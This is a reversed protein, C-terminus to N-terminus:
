RAFIDLQFIPLLMAIVIVGIISGVALIMAPELLTTLLKISENTEQEYTDAIDSLTASLSGSEEGVVILDGLMAPVIRLDKFSGGLSRGALLDDQCKRLEVAIVESGVVPTSLQMARVIPIGSKLLLQLTRCFRALEVKLIFPGLFPISLLVQSKYLRGEKTRDWQKILIAIVISGGLMWLWNHILFDSVAMVIQTPLPLEQDFNVFISTINPMVYTLIFIVTGLGFIGMFIPYAIASRVKSAIQQQEDLYSAVDAVMVKLNGSEEGAKIMTVYFNSFILPYEELSQSFSKGDKVEEYINEIAKKFYPNRIQEGILELTRLIPIGSKILNALQRTFLYLDKSSIKQPRLKVDVGRLSGAVGEQIFVAILGMQNIKEVAEDKNQAEIQGLVTQADKRKAKYHFIAM